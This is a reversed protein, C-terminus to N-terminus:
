VSESHMKQFKTSRKFDQKKLMKGRKTVSFFKSRFMGLVELFGSLSFDLYAGNKLHTEIKLRHCKTILRSGGLRMIEEYGLLSKNFEDM